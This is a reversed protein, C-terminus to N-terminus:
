LIVYDCVFLGNSSFYNEDSEAKKTLTCTSTYLIWCLLLLLSTEKSNTCSELCSKNATQDFHTSSLDPARKAFLSSISLITLLSPKFSLVQCHCSCSTSAPNQFHKSNPVWLVDHECLPIQCFKTGISISQKCAICLCHQQLMKDNKITKLFWTHGSLDALWSHHNTRFGPM